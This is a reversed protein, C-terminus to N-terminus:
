KGGLEHLADFPFIEEMTYKKFNRDKGAFYVPTKKDLFESLVQRCAGCPSVPYDADRCYIAIAKFDKKGKSVATFVASREACNTLGFSRNEVNVGTEISGDACLLAAGVHFNSYPAYAKESVEVAKDFLKNIDNLIHKRKIENVGRIRNYVIVSIFFDKNDKKLRINIQNNDDSTQIICISGPLICIYTLIESIM